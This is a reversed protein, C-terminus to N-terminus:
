EYRTFEGKKIKEEFEERSKFTNFYADEIRYDIRAPSCGLIRIMGNPTKFRDHMMIPHGDPSIYPGARKDGASSLMARTQEAPDSSPHIPARLETMDFSVRPQSNSVGEPIGMWEFPLGCDACIVQVDAVYGVVLEPDQDATLRGISARCEFNMHKCDKM